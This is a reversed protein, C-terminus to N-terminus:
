AGDESHEGYTARYHAAKEARVEQWFVLDDGALPWAISDAALRARADPSEDANRIRRLLFFEQGGWLARLAGGAAPEGIRRAM